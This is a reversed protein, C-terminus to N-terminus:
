YNDVLKAIPFGRANLINIFDAIYYLESGKGLRITSYLLLNWVKLGEFKRIDIAICVAHLYVMHTIMFPTSSSAELDM